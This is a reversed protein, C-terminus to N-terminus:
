RRSRSERPGDIEATGGIQRFRGLTYTDYKEFYGFRPWWAGVTLAINPKLDGDGFDTDLTLYAMGPAWAADPNRFGASQYWYGM